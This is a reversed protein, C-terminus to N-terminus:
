TLSYLISNLEVSNCNAFWNDGIIIDECYPCSCIRFIRSQKNNISNNDDDDEEIDNEALLTEDEKENDEENYDEEVNEALLMEDEKENNDDEGEENDNDEEEENNNNLDMEEIGDLMVDVLENCNEICFLEMRELSNKHIVLKKLNNYGILKFCSVNILCNEGIVIEELGFHIDEEKLEEHIEIRRENMPNDNYWEGEYVLENMKNYLRGNGFRNNNYYGGEYHISYNEDSYEIGYCVRKGEYVFGEYILKNAEGYICGYGYCNGNLSDGEWRVGNENLNIVDHNKLYDVNLNVYEMRQESKEKVKMWKEDINCEIVRITKDALQESQIYISNHIALFHNGNIGFPYIEEKQINNM